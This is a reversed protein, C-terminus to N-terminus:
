EPRLPDVFSIHSPISWGSSDPLQGTHPGEGSGYRGPTLWTGASSDAAPMAAIRCCNTAAVSAAPRHPKSRPSNCQACPYRSDDNMEGSVLWRDSSYPPDSAPRSRKGSSTNVAMRATHGALLGIVTRIEAVSQYSPPMVAASATRIAPA